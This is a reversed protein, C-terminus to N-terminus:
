KRRKGLDISRCFTVGYLNAYRKAELDGEQFVHVCDGDRYIVAAIKKTSPDVIEVFSATEPLSEVRGNTHRLRIVATPNCLTLLAQEPM